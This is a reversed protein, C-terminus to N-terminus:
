PRGEELTKVLKEFLDSNTKIDPDGGVAVPVSLVRVEPLEQKIKDGAKQDYLNEILVTHIGRKKMQEIVDLLHAATPPIGPKPELQAPNQLGFRDFFYNLTKHYTVVEKIKTKEIRTKWAKTKDELNKKFAAANKKYLERNSADLDGMRDATIVAAEGLRIPDLTFHPNGGPHVDGQARSINGMPVEIPNVKDGLELYGNTGSSIKPNRAGQILPVIWAAELELGQAVVLDASRMKVMYSPKAEIQHPDQTGKAISVVNVKDGGIESVMAALDATTTVVSLAAFASHTFLILAFVTMRLM